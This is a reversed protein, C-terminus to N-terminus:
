FGLALHPLLLDSGIVCRRGQIIHMRETMECLSIVDQLGCVVTKVPDKENEDLDGSARSM